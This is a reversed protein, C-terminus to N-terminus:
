PRVPIRAALFGDAATGLAPRRATVAAYIEGALVAFNPEGEVLAQVSRVGRVADADAQNLGAPVLPSCAGRYAAFIDAFEAPGNFVVVEAVVAEPDLALKAKADAASTAVAQVAYRADAVFAAYFAQSRGPQAVLLLRVPPVTTTEVVPQGSAGAPRAQTPTSWRGATMSRAEPKTELARLDALSLGATVYAQPTEPLLVLTFSNGQANLAALLEVPVVWRVPPEAEKKGAVAAKAPAPVTGTLVPTAALKLADTVSASATVTPTLPLTTEYRIPQAQTGAALM